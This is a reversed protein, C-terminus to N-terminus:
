RDPNNEFLVYYGVLLDAPPQFPRYYVFIEYFNETEFHNGELANARLGGGQVVYQYNYWGQKLLVEAQYTGSEPHYTMRYPEDLQWNTFAGSLFVDGSLPASKLTFRVTAYQASNPQTNDLNGIVFQGNLDLYRAYRDDARSRDIALYVLPPQRSRDVRDINIGPNILSRFDFFRFENGAPFLNESTFFRYELERQSERVFTPKIHQVMNDWRQNQRISVNVTEQPNIIDTRAYNLTFNLQQNLEAALGPGVLNSQRAFHLRNEFVMFRRTLLFNDPNHNRYVVVVYNGPLKVLPMTARYHVYPVPTDISYAFDNVPFSNFESLFDLDSLASKVWNHNCHILRFSLSENGSGLVDFELMLREQGLRVVPPNLSSVPMPGQLSYLQVSKVQSSYTRDSLEPGPTNENTHTDTYQVPVCSIVWLMIWLSRM